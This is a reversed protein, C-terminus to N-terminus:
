TENTKNIANHNTIYIIIFSKNNAVWDNTTKLKIYRVIGITTKSIFFFLSSLIIFFTEKILEIIIPRNNKNNASIYSFGIYSFMTYKKVQIAIIIM